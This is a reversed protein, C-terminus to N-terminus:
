RNYVKVGLRQYGLADQLKAEVDWWDTEEEGQAPGHEWGLIVPIGQKLITNAFHNRLRAGRGFEELTMSLVDIGSAGPLQQRQLRRAESRVAELADETPASEVIIAVDVDSGPRHDGRARSGFLFTHNAGAM